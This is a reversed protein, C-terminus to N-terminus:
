SFFAHWPLHTHDRGTINLSVCSCIWHLCPLFWLFRPKALWTCHFSLPGWHFFFVLSIIIISLWLTEPSSHRWWPSLCSLTGTHGSCQQPWLVLSLLSRALVPHWHCVSSQCTHPGSNGELVIFRAHPLMCFWCLHCVLSSSSPSCNNIILMPSSLHPLTSTLVLFVSVSDPGKIYSSPFNLASCTGGCSGMQTQSPVEQFNDQSRWMHVTAQMCGPGVLYM